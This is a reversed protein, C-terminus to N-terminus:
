ILKTRGLNSEWKRAQIADYRAYEPTDIDGPLACRNNMLVQKGQKAARNFYEAAFEATANPGGIDCWLMESGMEALKQMQPLQIDRIYDDVPLYGTYPLKPKDPLFTNTANMGPWRFFGYKEYAQNYWEPMSFYTAKHLQPQYQDAADFLEQVLDRHPTQSVSTRETGPADFLAYGDHHKTM